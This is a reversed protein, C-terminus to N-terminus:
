EDNDTALVPRPRTAVRAFYDTWVSTALESRTVSLREAEQKIKDPLDIRLSFSVVKTNRM